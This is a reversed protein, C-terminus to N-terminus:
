KLGLGVFAAHVAADSEQLRAFATALEAHKGATKVAAQFSTRSIQYNDVKTADPHHPNFRVISITATECTTDDLLFRCAAMVAQELHGHLVAPEDVNQILMLDPKGHLISLSPSYGVGLTRAWKAQELRLIACTSRPLGSDNDKASGAKGGSNAPPTAFVSETPTAAASATASPSSVGQALGSVALFGPLVCFLRILGNMPIFVFEAPHSVSAGHTM